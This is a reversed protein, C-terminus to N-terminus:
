EAEKHDWKGNSVLSFNLMYGRREIEGDSHFLIDVKDGSVLLTKGIAKNGCYVDLLKGTGDYIGL